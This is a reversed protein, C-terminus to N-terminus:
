KETKEEKTISNRLEKGNVGLKRDKRLFSNIPFIIMNKSRLRRM